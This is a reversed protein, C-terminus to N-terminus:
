TVYRVSSIRRPHLSHAGHCWCMMTLNRSRHPIRDGTTVSSMSVMPLLTSAWVAPICHSLSPKRSMVIINPVIHYTMEQAETVLSCGSPCRTPALDGAVEACKLESKGPESLTTPVSRWGLGRGGRVITFSRRVIAVEAAMKEYFIVVFIVDVIAVVDDTVNRQRLRSSTISHTHLWILFYTSTLHIHACDSYNM